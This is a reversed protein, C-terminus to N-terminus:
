QGGRKLSAFGDIIARRMSEHAELAEEKTMPREAAEPPKPEVEEAWKVLAAAVARADSISLCVGAEARGSRLALVVSKGDEGAPGLLRLGEGSELDVTVDGSM